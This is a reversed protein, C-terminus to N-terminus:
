KEVEKIGYEKIKSVYINNIKLVYQDTNSNHNFFAPYYEGYQDLLFCNAAGTNMDVIVKGMLLVRDGNKVVPFKMYFLTPEEQCRHFKLNKLKDESCNKMRFKMEPIRDGLKM